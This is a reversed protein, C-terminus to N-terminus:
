KGYLEETLNISEAEQSVMLKTIQLSLSRKVKGNVQRASDETIMASAVIGVSNGADFDTETIGLKELTDADLHLSLGYPYDDMTETSPKDWQERERKKDDDTRKIDVLGDM